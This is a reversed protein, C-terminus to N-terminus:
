NFPGLFFLQVMIFGLSLLRGPLEYTKKYIEYIALHREIHSIYLQGAYKSMEFFFDREKGSDDIIKM